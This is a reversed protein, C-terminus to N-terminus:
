KGFLGAFELLQSFLLKAEVPATQFGAGGKYHKWGLARVLLQVHVLVVSEHTKWEPYTADTQQCWNQFLLLRGCEYHLHLKLLHRRHEQGLVMSCRSVCKTVMLFQWTSMAWQRVEIQPNSSSNLDHPCNATRFKSSRLYQKLWLLSM